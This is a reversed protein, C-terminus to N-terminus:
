LDQYSIAMKKPCTVVNPLHLYANNSIGALIADRCKENTITKLPVNLIYIYIIYM